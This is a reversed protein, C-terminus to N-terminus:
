SNKPSVNVDDDGFVVSENFVDSFVVGVVRADDEVAGIGFVVVHFDRSIVDPVEKVDFGDKVAFDASLKVVFLSTRFRLM